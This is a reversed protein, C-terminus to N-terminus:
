ECADSGNLLIGLQTFCQLFSPRTAKLSSICPMHFDVSFLEVSMTSYANADSLGRWFGSTRSTSSMWSDNVSVRSSERTGTSHRKSTRM